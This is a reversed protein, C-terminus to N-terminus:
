ARKGIQAVAALELQETEVEFKHGINKLNKIHSQMDKPMGPLNKVPLDGLIGDVETISLPESM